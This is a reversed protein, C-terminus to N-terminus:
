LSPATRGAGPRREALLFAGTLAMVLGAILGVLMSLGALPSSEADFVDSAGLQLTLTYLSRTFLAGAGVWAAVMPKWFRGGRRNVLALLGAIGVLALLGYVGEITQQAANREGAEGDPLGSTGGFAWFLRVGAYLLVPAVMVHTLLRQVHHTAGAPTEGVRQTFVDAWRDRAYLTFAALLGIGQLTFGGYVIAYVWGQLGNDDGTIPTSSTLTQVVTGLPVGLAIPLLLGTATWIPALVLWAPIRRGWPFTFALVVLVAVADMGLTVVNGVYRASEGASETDNWGVTSGSLWLIKLFLYPVCAAITAACMALRGRGPRRGPAPRRERAPGAARAPLHQDSVTM